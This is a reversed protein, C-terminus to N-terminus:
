KSVQISHEKQLADLIPKLNRSHKEVLDPLLGAVPELKVKAGRGPAISLTSLKNEPLASEWTTLLTSITQRCLNTLSVIEKINFRKDSLLLCLSRERVVSNGSAKQLETLQHKEEETLSIYRM